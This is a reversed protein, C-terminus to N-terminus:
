NQGILTGRPRLSASCAAQARSACLTVGMGPLVAGIAEGGAFAALGLLVGGITFGLGAACPTLGLRGAFRRADSLIRPEIRVPVALELRPLDRRVIREIQM